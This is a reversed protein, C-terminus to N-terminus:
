PPSSRREGDQEPMRDGLRDADLLLPSRREPDRGTAEVQHQADQAAEELAEAVVARDADAQDALLGGPEHDAAHEGRDPEPDGARVDPGRQREHRHHEVARHGSRRRSPAASGPRRGATGSHVWTRLAHAAIAASPIM